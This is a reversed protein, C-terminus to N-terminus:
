NFTVGYNQSKIFRFHTRVPDVLFIIPINKYSGGKLDYLTNFLIKTFETINKIESDNLVTADLPTSKEILKGNENLTITLYNSYTSILFYM